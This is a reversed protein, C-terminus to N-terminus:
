SQNATAAQADLWLLLAENQEESLPSGDANVHNNTADTKVGKLIAPMEVQPNGGTGPNGVPEDLTETTGPQRVASSSRAPVATMRVLDASTKIVEGFGYDKLLSSFDLSLNINAVGPKSYAVKRGQAEHIYGKRDIGDRGKVVEGTKIGENIMEQTITLQEYSGKVGVFSFYPLDPSLGAGILLNRFEARSFWDGNIILNGPITTGPRPATGRISAITLNKKITNM